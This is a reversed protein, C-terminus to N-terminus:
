GKKSPDQDCFLVRPTWAVEEGKLIAAFNERGVAANGTDVCHEYARADIERTSGAEVCALVAHKFASVATPSWRAVKGCLSMARELAADVDAAQEQLLGIRLAEQVDIREGSMGLRLCQALGIERWLHSSGGAGPVIGLGTEPLGFLAGPCGVRYDCTLLYETGWGLAVGHVVGVHFVPVARLESLVSRQWRVHQKVQEDSWGQRESVDAGAVFIPRGKSSVRRSYSILAAVQPDDCLQGALIELEKLVAAGMENAKGHNFELRVVAGHNGVSVHLLQFRTLDM